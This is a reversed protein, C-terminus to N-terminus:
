GKDRKKHFPLERAELEVSLVDTNKGRGRTTMKIRIVEEFAMFYKTENWM